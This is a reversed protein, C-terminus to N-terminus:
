NRLYHSVNHCTTLKQPLSRCQSMHDTESTMVKFNYCNFKLSQEKIGICSLLKEAMDHCAWKSSPDTYVRIVNLYEPINRSNM